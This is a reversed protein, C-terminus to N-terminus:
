PVCCSLHTYCVRVLSLLLMPHGPNVQFGTFLEETAKDYEEATAHIRMLTDSSSVSAFMDANFLSAYARQVWGKIDKSGDEATLEQM